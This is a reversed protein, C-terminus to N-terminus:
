DTLRIEDGFDVKRALHQRQGGVSASGSVGPMPMTVNNM